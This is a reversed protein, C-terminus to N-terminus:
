RNSEMKKLDVIALRVHGLTVGSDAFVGEDDPGRHKIAKNMAEAQDRDSFSFGNIGCM